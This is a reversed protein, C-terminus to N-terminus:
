DKKQQNRKQQDRYKKNISKRIFQKISLNNQNEM